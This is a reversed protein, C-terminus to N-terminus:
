SKVKKLTQQISREFVKYEKKVFPTLKSPEVNVGQRLCCLQKEALLKLTLANVPLKAKTLADVLENRTENLLKKSVKSM